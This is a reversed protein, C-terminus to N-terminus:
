VRIHISGKNIWEVWGSECVCVRLHMHVWAHEVGVHVHFRWTQECWGRSFAEENFRQRKQQLKKQRTRHAGQLWRVWESSRCHLSGENLHKNAWALTSAANNIILPSFFPLLIIPVLCVPAHLVAILLLGEMNPSLRAIGSKLPSMFCRTRVQWSGASLLRVIPKRHQLEGVDLVLTPPPLQDDSVKLCNKTWELRSFWTLVHM